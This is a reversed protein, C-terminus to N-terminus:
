QLNLLLGPVCGAFNHTRAQHQQLECREYVKTALKCGFGNVLPEQMLSIQM